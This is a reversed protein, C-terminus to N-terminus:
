EEGQSLRKCACLQEYFNPYSKSICEIDDCALDAALLAMAIRHDGRVQHCAVAEIRNSEKLVLSETGSAELVVGMQECCIATAPYLDPTQAFDFVIREPYTYAEKHTIVAGESCYRTAVGLREFLDSVAKDGQISEARLGRLLLEGGHLAVYEYWFAAASWDAEVSMQRYEEYQRVVAQTMEIYPSTINTTAPVGILLLASVFQTSLPGAIHVAKRPLAKGKIQLPPYGEKGIYRIDAGLARLATVEQGIPRERMRECGTLVVDCGSSQAFYATLFRMATGCNGLDIERGDTYEAKDVALVDHLLRVDDPMNAASVSQQRDGHVSQLILRRNAISKSIPLDVSFM